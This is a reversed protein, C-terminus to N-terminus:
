QSAPFEGDRSSPSLAWLLPPKARHELNPSSLWDFAEKAYPMYDRTRFYSSGRLKQNKVLMALPDPPSNLWGMVSELPDLQKGNLQVLKECNSFLSQGMYRLKRLALLQQLLDYLLKQPQFYCPFTVSFDCSISSREENALHFYISNEGNEQAWVIHHVGVRCM